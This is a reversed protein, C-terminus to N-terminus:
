EMSFDVEFNGKSIIFDKDNNKNNQKPETKPKDKKVVTNIKQKPIPQIDMKPNLLDKVDEIIENIAGENIDTLLTLKRKILNIHDRLDQKTMSKNM